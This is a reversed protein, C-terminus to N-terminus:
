YTPPFGLAVREDASIESPRGQQDVRVTTMSGLAAIEGDANLVEFEWTISAVGIRSIDLLVEIQDGTMLPKKFDCSVNVRPWGGVNRDFVLIGVSRLYSHEVTEAYRFINPFHVWGSADTDGFSVELKQRHRPIEM